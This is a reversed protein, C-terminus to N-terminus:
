FDLPRVRVVFDYQNLNAAVGKVSFYFNEADAPVFTTYTNGGGVARSSVTKSSYSSPNKNTTSTYITTKGIHDKMEIEFFANKKIKKLTHMKYYRSSNGTMEGQVKIDPLVFAPFQCMKMTIANTVRALDLYSAINLVYDRDGAIGLLETDGDTGINGIGVAFITGEIPSSRLAEAAPIAPRGENSHGDTFIAFVRPIAKAAPRCRAQCYTNALALADGTATNQGLRQLDAVQQLLNMREFEFVDTQASLSMTSSFNIVAVGAKDTGVNLRSVLDLLAKKGQEFDDPPVSGSSDIILTLDIFAECTNQGHVHTSFSLYIILLSISLMMMRM